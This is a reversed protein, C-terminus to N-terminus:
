FTWHTTERKRETYAKAKVYRIMSNEYVVTEKGFMDAVRAVTLEMNSQGSCLWVDGVLIDKVIVENVTMEYPGGAKM